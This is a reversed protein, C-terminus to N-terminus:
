GQKGRRLLAMTPGSEGFSPGTTGGVSAAQPEPEPHRAVPAVPRPRRGHHSHGMTRSPGRFRPIASTTADAYGTRDPAARTTTASRMTAGFFRRREKRLREKNQSPERPNMPLLFM